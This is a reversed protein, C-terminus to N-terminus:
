LELHTNRDLVAEEMNHKPSEPKKERAPVGLGFPGGGAPPSALHELVHVHCSCSRPPQLGAEEWCM